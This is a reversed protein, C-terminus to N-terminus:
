MLGDLMLGPSYEICPGPSWITFNLVNLLRTSFHLGVTSFELGMFIAAKHYIYTYSYSQINWVNLMQPQIFTNVITRKMEPQPSSCWAVIRWSGRLLIEHGNIERPRMCCSAWRFRCSERSLPSLDRRSVHQIIFDSHFDSDYSILMNRRHPAEILFKEFISLM